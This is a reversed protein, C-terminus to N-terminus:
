PLISGSRATFSIELFAGNTDTASVSKQLVENRTVSGCAACAKQHFGSVLGLLCRM